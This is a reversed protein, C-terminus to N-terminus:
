REAPVQSEMVEDHFIKKRAKGQSSNAWSRM